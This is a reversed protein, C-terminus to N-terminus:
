EVGNWHKLCCLCNILVIILHAVIPTIARGEGTLYQLDQTELEFTDEVLFEKETDYSQKTSKERPEHDKYWTSEPYDISDDLIM